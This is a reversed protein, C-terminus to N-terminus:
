YQSSPLRTHPTVEFVVRVFVLFQVGLVTNGAASAVREVTAAASIKYNQGKKGIKCGLGYTAVFKLGAPKKKLGLIVPRCSYCM